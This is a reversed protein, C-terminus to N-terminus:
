EVTSIKMMNIRGYERMPIGGVFVLVDGKQIHESNKLIDTAEQIADNVSIKTELFHTKIGKAINLQSIIEKNPTFAFITAKPRNSAIKYASGGLSTFVVIGKANALDAM